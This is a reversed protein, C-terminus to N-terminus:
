RIQHLLQETLDRGFSSNATKSTSFLKKMNTQSQHDDPTRAVGARRQTHTHTHTHTRTRTHQVYM